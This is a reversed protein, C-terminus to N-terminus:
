LAEIFRLYEAMREKAYARAEAEVLNEHYAEYDVEAEVYHEFADKLEYVEQYMRLEPKEINELSSIHNVLDHAYAHHCEHLLTEMVDIRNVSLLKESVSLVRGYESYYGRLTEREYTEKEVTVPEIGLYRCELDVLKQFLEMKGRETLQGYEEAGWMRLYGKNAEFLEKGESAVLEPLQKEETTGIKGVSGGVLALICFCGIIRAMGANWRRIWRERGGGGGIMQGLLVVAYFIMVAIALLVPISGKSYWKVCQIVAIPTLGIICLWPMNKETWYRDTLIKLAVMIYMYVLMLVARNWVKEGLVVHTFLQDRMVLFPLSWIVLLADGFLESIWSQRKPPPSTKSRQKQNMRPIEVQASQNIIRAEQRKYASM